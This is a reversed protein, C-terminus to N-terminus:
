YDSFLIKKTNNFIKSVCEKKINLEESIVNLSKKLIMNNIVVYQMIPTMTNITAALTENDGYISLLKDFISNKCINHSKINIIATNIKFLIISLEKNLRVKPMGLLKIIDSLSYNQLILNAVVYESIKLEKILIAIEYDKNNMLNSKIVDVIDAECKM